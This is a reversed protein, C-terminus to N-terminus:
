EGDGRPPEPLPRWHTPAVYEKDAAAFPSIWRYMPKGFWHGVAVHGPWEAGWILLGSGDKPATEIPRWRQSAVLNWVAIAEARSSRAPGIWCRPNSCTVNWDRGDHDVEAPRGCPCRSPTM